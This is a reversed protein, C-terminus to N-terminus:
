YRNVLSTVVLTRTEYRPPRPTPLGAEPLDLPEDPPEIPPTTM